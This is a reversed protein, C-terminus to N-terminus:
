MNMQDKYIQEFHRSITLVMNFLKPIEDREFMIVDENFPKIMEAKDDSACVYTAATNTYETEHKMHYKFIDPPNKGIYVIKVDEVKMPINCSTSYKITKIPPTFFDERPVINYNKTFIYQWVLEIRVSDTKTNMSNYLTEYTELSNSQISKKSVIFQAGGCTIFTLPQNEFLPKLYSQTFNMDVCYWFNNLPIFDYKEINADRILELIPRDGLQHHAHEHGHVFATYEPLTSYRSIIFYLFSKAEFGENPISVSKFCEEVPDGGEKHIVTVPWPSQKLWSLDENYHCSCIEM